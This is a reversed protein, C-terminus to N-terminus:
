VRWRRACLSQLARPSDCPNWRPASMLQGSFGDPCPVFSRWVHSCVVVVVAAAAAAAAARSVAMDAIQVLESDEEVANEASFQLFHQDLDTLRRGAAQTEREPSSASSTVDSISTLTQSAGLGSSNL